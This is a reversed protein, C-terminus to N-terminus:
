GGTILSSVEFFSRRILIFGGRATVLVSFINNGRIPNIIVVKIAGLANDNSPINNKPFKNFSDPTVLLSASVARVEIVSMTVIRNPIHTPADVLAAFNRVMPEIFIKTRPANENAIAVAPPTITAM